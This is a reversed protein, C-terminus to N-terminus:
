PLVAGGVGFKGRPWTVGERAELLNGVLGSFGLALLFKDMM